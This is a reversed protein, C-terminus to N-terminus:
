FITSPVFLHSACENCDSHTCLVFCLASSLIKKAYAHRLASCSSTGAQRTCPDDQNTRCVQLRNSASALVAVAHGVAEGKAVVNSMMNFQHQRNTPALALTKKGMLDLLLSLQRAHHAAARVNDVSEKWVFKDSGAKGGEEAESKSRKATEVRMYAVRRAFADEPNEPALLVVTGDPLIREVDDHPVSELEVKIRKRKEGAGNDMGGGHLALSVDSIGDEEKKVVADLEMVV